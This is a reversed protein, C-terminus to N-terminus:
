ARNTFHVRCRRSGDQGAGQRAETGCPVLHHGSIEMLISVPNCTGLASPEQALLIQLRERAVSASNDGNLPLPWNM